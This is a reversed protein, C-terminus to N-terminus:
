NKMMMMMMLLWVPTTATCCSSSSPWSLFASSPRTARLCLSQHSLWRCIRLWGQGAHSYYLRLEKVLLHMTHSLTARVIHTHTQPNGQVSCIWRGPRIIVTCRNKWLFTIEDENWFFLIPKTQNRTRLSPRPLGREFTLNCTCCWCTATCRVAGQSTPNSELGSWQALAATGFM